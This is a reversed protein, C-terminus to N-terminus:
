GRFSSGKFIEWQVTHVLLELKNGSGEVKICTQLGTGSSSRRRWKYVNSASSQPRKTATATSSPGAFVSPPNGVFRHKTTSTSHVSSSSSEAHDDNLM